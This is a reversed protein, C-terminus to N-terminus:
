MHANFKEVHIGLFYETEEIRHLQPFSLSLFCKMKYGKSTDSNNQVMSINQGLIGSFVFFTL